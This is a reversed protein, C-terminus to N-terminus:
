IYGLAEMVGRNPETLRDIQARTLADRWLGARGERFFWESHPPREKFGDRREQGSLEKFSSFEIARNLREAAFPLGLSDVVRKFTSVSRELMEKMGVM